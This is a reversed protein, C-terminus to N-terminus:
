ATFDILNINVTQLFDEEHQVCYAFFTMLDVRDPRHHSGRISSSAAALLRNNNNHRCALSTENETNSRNLHTQTGIERWLVLFPFFRRNSNLWFLLSNLWYLRKPAWKIFTKRKTDRHTNSSITWNLLMWIISLSLQGQSTHKVSGQQASPSMIVRKERKSHSNCWHSREIPHSAPQITSRNTPQNSHNTPKQKPLCSITHYYFDYFATLMMM